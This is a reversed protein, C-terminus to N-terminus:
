RFQLGSKLTTYKRHMSWLTNFHVRARTMHHKLYDLYARAYCRSGGSDYKNHHDNFVQSGSLSQLVCFLGVSNFFFVWKHWSCWFAPGIHRSERIKAKKEKFRKHSSTASRFYQRSGCVHQSHSNLYSIQLLYSFTSLFHLKMMGLSTLSEQLCLHACGKTM